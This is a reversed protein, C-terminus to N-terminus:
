EPREQLSALKAMRRQCRPCTVASADGAPSQWGTFCRGPSTQAQVEAYNIPAGM